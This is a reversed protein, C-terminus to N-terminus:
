KDETKETIHFSRSKPRERERQYPANGQHAGQRGSEADATSPWQRLQDVFRLPPKATKYFSASLLAQASLFSDQLLPLHATKFLLHLQAVHFPQNAFSVKLIPFQVFPNRSGAPERQCRSTSAGPIPDPISPVASDVAVSLQSLQTRPLFFNTQSPSQLINIESILALSTKFATQVNKVTAQYIRIYQSSAVTELKLSFYVKPTGKGRKSKKRKRFRPSAESSTRKTSQRYWHLM